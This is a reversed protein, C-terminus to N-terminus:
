RLQTRAAPVHRSRSPSSGGPSRGHSRQTWSSTSLAGTREPRSEQNRVPAWWESETGALQLIAAAGIRSATECDYTSIVWALRAFTDIDGRRAVADQIESVIGPLQDVIVPYADGAATAVAAPM